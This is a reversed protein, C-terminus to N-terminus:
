TAAFSRPPRRSPTTSGPRSGSTAASPSARLARGRSPSRALPSASRGCRARTRGAPASITSAIVLFSGQSIGAEEGAVMDAPEVEWGKRECYRMYMRYLMAAWDMAEVGGVGAIAGDTILDRLDGPAMAGKVWDGLAAMHGDIWNMPYEALWFISQFLTFLVILLIVNGWLPHLLVRDIRDSAITKMMPNETVVTEGLRKSLIEAVM